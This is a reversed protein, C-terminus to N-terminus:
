SVIETIKGWITIITSIFGTLTIATLIQKRFKVRSMGESEIKPFIWKCFYYGLLAITLPIFIMILVKMVSDPLFFHFSWVIAGSIISWLVWINQSQFFKNLSLEHERFLKNIRNSIGGVWNPDTSSVSVYSLGNGMTIQIHIRKNKSYCHFSVIELEKLQLNDLFSPIDYYTSIRDKYVYKLELSYYSSEKEYEAYEQQIIKCLRELISKSFRFRPNFSIVEERAPVKEIM